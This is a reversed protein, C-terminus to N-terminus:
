LDGGTPYVIRKRAIRDRLNSPVPPAHAACVVGGRQVDVYTAPMQCTRGNEVYAICKPFTGRDRNRKDM